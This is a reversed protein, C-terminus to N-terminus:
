LPLFTMEMPENLNETLVVKTFRRKDPVDSGINKSASLMLGVAVLAFTSFRYVKGVAFFLLHSIRKNLLTFFSKM